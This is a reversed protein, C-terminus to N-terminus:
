PRCFIQMAPLIHQKNIALLVTVRISPHNEDFGANEKSQFFFCEYANM